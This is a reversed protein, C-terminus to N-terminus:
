FFRLNKSLRLASVFVTEAKKNSIANSLNKKTHYYIKTFKPIEGDINIIWNENDTSINHKLIGEM